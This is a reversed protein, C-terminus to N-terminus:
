KIFLYLLILQVIIIIPVGLTFKIHKTKHRFMYMGLISGISGGIISLLILKAESIRWKHKISKRKDIFMALFSIMNIVAIYYIFLEKM